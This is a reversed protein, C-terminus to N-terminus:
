LSQLPKTAIRTPAHEGAWEIDEVGRKLEETVSRGLKNITHWQQKRIFWGELELFQITSKVM